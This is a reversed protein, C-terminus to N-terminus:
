TQNNPVNTSRASKLTNQVIQKITHLTLEKRMTKYKNQKIKQYTLPERLTRFTNQEINPVDTGQAINQIRKTQNKHRLHKVCQKSHTKNSQKTM